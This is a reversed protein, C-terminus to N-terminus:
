LQMGLEFCKLGVWPTVGQSKAEAIAEGLEGLKVRHVKIFQDVQLDQRPRWTHVGRRKSVSASKKPKKNEKAELSVDVIALQQLEDTLGASPTMPDTIYRVTGTYGTEAKVVRLACEAATEDPKVLAAPPELALGGLPPRFQCVLLLEREDGSASPSALIALAYVVEPNGARQVLDYKRTVGGEDVYDRSLLRLWQTAYLVTDTGVLSANQSQCYVAATGTAVTAAALVAPRCHTRAARFLPSLANRLM